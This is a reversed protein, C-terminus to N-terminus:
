LKKQTHPTYVIESTQQINDLVVLEESKCFKMCDKNWIKIVNFNQNKEVIRKPSIAVGQIINGSNEVVSGMMAAITYLLFYRTAKQRNVRLSYCGGKINAHNEYLPPVGERMWFLMGQHISIDQLENTIAFVDGWTKCTGILYYSDPTWRTDAPNHYYLCWSGTPISDILQVSSM